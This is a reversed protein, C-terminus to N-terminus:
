GLPLVPQVNQVNNLFEKKSITGDGDKDVEQMWDDLVRDLLEKFEKKNMESVESVLGRAQL